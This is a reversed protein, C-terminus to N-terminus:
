SIGNFDILLDALFYFYYYFTTFSNNVENSIFVNM